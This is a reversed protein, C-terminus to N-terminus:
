IQHPPPTPAADLGVCAARARVASCIMNYKFLQSPSHGVKRVIKDFPIIDNHHWIDGIYLLDANVWNLTFFLKGRYVVNRKNWLCKNEFSDM